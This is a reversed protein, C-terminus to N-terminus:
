ACGFRACRVHRHVHMCLLVHCDSAYAYAYAYVAAFACESACAGADHRPQLRQRYEHHAYVYLGGCAREKRQWRLAVCRVRVRGRKRARQARM